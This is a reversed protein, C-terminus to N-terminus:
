HGPASPFLPIFAAAAGAATLILAAALAPLSTPTLAFLAGGGGIRRPAEDQMTRGVLILASLFVAYLAWGFGAHDRAFAMGLPTQTALWIVLYARLINALIAGAAALTMFLLRKRWSRFAAGAFVASVLLAALLFNLGACADAIEFRGASTAILVGDREIAVGSVSLLPAVAGATAAQLIPKLSEGFPAAFFLFLLPFAAQKANGLGFVTAFCAILIAIFGIHGVVDADAAAGILMLAALPALAAAAAPSPAPAEFVARERWILWLGLPFVAAGHHYASSSIWQGVMTAIANPFSFAAILALLAFQAAAPLAPADARGASKGLSFRDGEAQLRTGSM